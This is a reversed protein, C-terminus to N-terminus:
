LLQAAAPNGEASEGGTSIAQLGGVFSSLGSTRLPVFAKCRQKCLHKARQCAGHSVCDVPCFIADGQALVDDLRSSNEEIGGDHHIFIGGAREVLSRLHPILGLRGGVYVIRQGRLDVGGSSHEHLRTLDAHLVAELAECEQGAVHLAENLQDSLQRLREIEREQAACRTTAVNARESEEAARRDAELARSRLADVAAGSELDRIRQMAGELRRDVTRYSLIQETLDRQESAHREVLQRTDSELEFYRRRLKTHEEALADRETEMARLRRIDARNSAGVLHSLMHVHGFAKWTLGTTAAPHTVIAWFPGPIDGDELAREWAAALEAETGLRGFRRIAAEHRRDLVKNMAKAIPGKEAARAAFYGHIEYEEADNPIPIRLKRILRQLDALTLCTGLVSCHLKKDIEWLKWRKSASDSSPPAPPGCRDCM